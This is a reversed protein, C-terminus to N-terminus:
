NDANFTLVTGVNNPIFADPMAAAIKHVASWGTCHGPMMYDPAIKKLERITEPIIKEFLGGTLHFGGVIAHIKECNTLRQAYRVTNIIGSHCCGTIIVLGKERLKIIICQDDMILPDHEWTGSHKTYHAPFGKEFDTIRAIEGSVLLHDDALFATNKSIMPIIKNQQSQTLVPASVSVEKGSPMKVMRDLFADPHAILPIPSCGIQDIVAPLGGTHDSHGHSLVIANLDNVNFAMTKLNHLIGGSSIGADLLVNKYANGYKVQLLSSFGHEAVLFSFGDETYAEQQSPDFRHAIKSGTMFVDITNDMLISINVEDADLLTSNKM